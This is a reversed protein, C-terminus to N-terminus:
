HFMLVSKMLAWKLASDNQYHCHLTLYSGRGGGGGGRPIETGTVLIEGSLEANM